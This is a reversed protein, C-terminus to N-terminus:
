KKKIFFHGIWFNNCEFINSRSHGDISVSKFDLISHIKKKIDDINDLKNIFNNMKERGDGTLYRKMKEETYNTYDKIHEEGLLAIFNLFDGYKTPLNHALDFGNGIVLINM